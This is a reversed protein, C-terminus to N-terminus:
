IRRKATGADFDISSSRKLGFAVDKRPSMSARLGRMPSKLPSKMVNPSLRPSRTQNYHIKKPTKLLINENEKVNPKANEMVREASQNSLISKMQSLIVNKKAESDFNNNNVIDNILTQLETISLKIYDINKVYAADKNLSAIEINALNALLPKFDARLSGIRDNLELIEENELESMCNRVLRTFEQQQDLIMRDLRSKCENTSEMFKISQENWKSEPEVMKSQYHELFQTYTDNMNESVLRNIQINIENKFSNLKNAFQNEVLNLFATDKQKMFTRMFEQFKENGYKHSEIQSSYENVQNLIDSTSLTITEEFSKLSNKSKIIKKSLEADIESLKELDLAVDEFAGKLQLFCTDRIIESSIKNNIDSLSSSIKDTLLSKTKIQSEFANTINKNFESFLWNCKQKMLNENEQQKKFKNEYEVIKCELSQINQTLIQKDNKENDLKKMQHELQNMLSLRFGKLEEVEDKLTKQTLYLEKYNSDDMVICNERRRTAMLDLKLKRNEEVLDNVIFEESITNGIQAANQINKAKSAYELTSMSAHVDLLTPAINAVLVTKTKGGLSDQLLRTLKSERYPVFSSGDVLSNIVRGLTLLSQNISGAEKARQNTSGSRNINESGALDVLNMKAFQYENGNPKKKMLHITFITHSRSSAANMKTAAIKKRELGLKFLKMAEEFDKIYFEELGKIKMTKNSGEYIKLLKDNKGDSLLDRLIENYIEVFSCKLLVNNMDSDFMRKLSRPIIGSEPTLSNENVKGCMTYTKGAGTQGYAFITCNFGKVFDDCVKEAVNQFFMMQDTTPGYVQDLKYTRTTSNDINVIDELKNTGSGSSTTDNFNEPLSIKVEDAKDKEINIVTPSTNENEVFGRGRCRVIVNISETFLNLNNLKSTTQTNSSASSSLDTRSLQEDPSRRQTKRFM